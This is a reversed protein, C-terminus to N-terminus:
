LYALAEVEPIEMEPFLSEEQRAQLSSADKGCSLQWVIENVYLAPIGGARIAEFQIRTALM